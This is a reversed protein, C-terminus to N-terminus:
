EYIEMLPREYRTKVLEIWQAEDDLSLVHLLIESRDKSLGAFVTGPISTVIAALVALAHPDKLTLPVRIFGSRERREKRGLIVLAVEYNSRCIDVLIHALLSFLAPVVRAHAKVPRLSDAAVPGFWALFLGMAIQGASLSQNMLLWLVLLFGSLPLSPFWRKMM